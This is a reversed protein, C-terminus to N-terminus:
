LRGGSSPEIYGTGKCTGCDLGPMEDVFSKGWCLPCERDKMSVRFLSHIVDRSPFSSLYRRGDAALATRFDKLKM